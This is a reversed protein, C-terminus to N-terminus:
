EVSPCGGGISKITDELAKESNVSYTQVSIGKAKACKKVFGSMTKGPGAEVFTDFGENLLHFISDEMLVAATLQQIVNKKIEGPDKVAEACCNMIVPKVPAQFPINYISGSLKEAAPQMLDCHSPISVEIRKAVINKEQALSLLSEIGEIVGSVSIQGPCNFNSPVVYGDAMDCLQIVEEKSKGLIVAMGGHGVPVAEQMATARTQVLSSAVDIPIVGAAAVATWEGLSFGIFADAHIGAKIIAQYIAMETAFLCPQTNETLNLEEAPGDMTIKLLNKAIARSAIHFIEEAEPHATIIDKAMGVSQTGQGPFMIALKGM